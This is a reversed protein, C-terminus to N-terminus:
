LNMQLNLYIVIIEIKLKGLKIIGGFSLVKRENKGGIEKIELVCILFEFLILNNRYFEM